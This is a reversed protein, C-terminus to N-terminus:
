QKGEETLTENLVNIMVEFLTEGEEPYVEELERDDEVAIYYGDDESEGVLVRLLGGCSTDNPIILVETPEYVDVHQQPNLIVDLANEGNRNTAFPTKDVLKIIKGQIKILYVLIDETAFSFQEFCKDLNADVNFMGQNSIIAYKIGDKMGDNETLFTVATAIAKGIEQYAFATIDNDYYGLCKDYVTKYADFEENDRTLIAGMDLAIIQTKM